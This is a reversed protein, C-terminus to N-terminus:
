PEGYEYLADGITRSIASVGILAVAALTEQRAAHMAEAQSWLFPIDQKPEGLDAAQDEQHRLQVIDRGFM